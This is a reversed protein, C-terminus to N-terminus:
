AISYRAWGTAQNYTFERLGDDHIGLRQLILYRALRATLGASLQMTYHKRAPRM